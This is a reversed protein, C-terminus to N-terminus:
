REGGIAEAELRDALRDDAGVRVTGFAAEVAQLLRGGDVGVVLETRGLLIVADDEGVTVARGHTEAVDRVRGVTGLVHIEGSPRPM